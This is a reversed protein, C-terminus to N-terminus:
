DYCFCFRMALPNQRQIEVQEVVYSFECTALPTFHMWTKIQLGFVLVYAWLKVKHLTIHIM